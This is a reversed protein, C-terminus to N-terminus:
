SFTDPTGQENCRNPLRETHAEPVGTHAPFGIENMIFLQRAYLIQEASLIDKLIRGKESM